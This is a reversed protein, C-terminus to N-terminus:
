AGARCRSATRASSAGGSARGCSTTQRSSAGVPLSSRSSASSKRIVLVVTNESMTSGAAVQYSFCSRLVVSMCGYTCENLGAIAGGHSVRVSKSANPVIARANLRSAAVWRPTRRSRM